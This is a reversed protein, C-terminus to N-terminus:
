LVNRRVHHQVCDSIDDVSPLYDRVTEHRNPRGAVPCLVHESTWEMGQSIRRTFLTFGNEQLSRLLLRPHVQIQSTTMNSDVSGNIM